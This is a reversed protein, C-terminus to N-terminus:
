LVMKSFCVSVLESKRDNYILLMLNVAEHLRMLTIQGTLHLCFAKTLNGKYMYSQRMLFSELTHSILNRCESIQIRLLNLIPLSRTILDDFYGIESCHGTLIEMAWLAALSTIEAAKDVSRMKFLLLQWSLGELLISILIHFGVHKLCNPIYIRVWTLFELSGLCVIEHELVEDTVVISFYGLIIWHQCLLLLKRGLNLSRDRLELYWQVLQLNLRLLLLHIMVVLILITLDLVLNSKLLVM